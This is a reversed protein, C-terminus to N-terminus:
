KITFRDFSRTDLLATQVFNMEKPFSLQISQLFQDITTQPGQVYAEVTGDQLNAVTGKLNLQTAIKFVTMRFGVGQVRGKFILHVLREDSMANVNM